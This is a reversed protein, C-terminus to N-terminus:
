NGELLALYNRQADLQAQLSDLQLALGAVSAELDAKVAAWAAEETPYYDDPSGLFRRGQADVATITVGTCGDLVGERLVSIPSVTCHSLVDDRNHWVIDFLTKTVIEPM